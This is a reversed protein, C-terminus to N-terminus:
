VGNLMQRVLVRVVSCASGEASVVSQRRGVAMRM